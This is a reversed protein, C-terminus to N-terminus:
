ILSIPSHKPSLLAKLLSVCGTTDPTLKAESTKPPSNNNNNNNNNQQDRLQIHIQLNKQYLIKLAAKHFLLILQFSNRGFSDRSAAFCLLLALVTKIFKFHQRLRNASCCLLDPMLLNSLLTLYIQEWKREFHVSWAIWLLTTTGIMICHWECSKSPSM